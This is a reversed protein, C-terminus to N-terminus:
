LSDPHASITLPKVVGLLERRLCEVVDWASLNGADVEALARDLVSAVRSRSLRQNDSQQQPTAWRCNSPEYHGNVDVRDLSTGTPKDGMDDAFADFSAVWRACVRIGRGGYDQYKPNTRSYCRNRMGLWASYLPHSQKPKPRCAACWALNQHRYLYESKAEREAGCGDCRLLWIGIQRTRGPGIAVRDVRIKRIAVWSKLRIGSFDGRARM